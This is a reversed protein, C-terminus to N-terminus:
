RDSKDHSDDLRKRTKIKRHTIQNNVLKKTESKDYSYNNIRESTKM